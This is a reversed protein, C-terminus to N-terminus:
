QWDDETAQCNSLRSLSAIFGLKLTTAGQRASPNTLTLSPSPASATFALQEFPRARVPALRAPDGCLVINLGEFPCTSHPSVAHLRQGTLRHDGCEIRTSTASSYGSPARIDALACPLSFPVHVEPHCGTCPTNHMMGHYRGLGLTSEHMDDGITCIRDLFAHM